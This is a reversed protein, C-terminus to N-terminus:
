KLIKGMKSSDASGKPFMLPATKNAVVHAVKM